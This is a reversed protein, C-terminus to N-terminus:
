LLGTLPTVVANEDVPVPLVRTCGPETVLADPTAVPEIAEVTASSFVILMVVGLPKVPTLAVTVKTAPVATAPFEVMEAEGDLPIVASPVVIVVTVIVRRSTFLLGTLPIEVVIAEVPTPFVIACGPEAVLAAPCAVAVNFDVKASAFVILIAVGAPKLPTVVEAVKTAPAGVTALEVIEADGEVPRVASPVVDEVTVMVRRSALLLGAGPRVAVKAAVPVPFVRVWGAATVLAEPTVVPVILDVAAPNFVSLTDPGAPSEVTVLVTVNTAPAADAAVDVMAAEGLVPTVASPEAVDATVIVRRSALPFGIAPTAVVKPEVPVPFVSTWGAETVFADPTAVPVMAEVTASAFVSLMVPGAPRDLTVLVTVNAGPAGDAVLEVIAAEGLVPRVAFPEVVEVTVIVRRSAFLLEILPVDTVKAAVPEPFVRTCGAATVFADPTAVPVMAEVAAPVFVTLMAVGTPSEVTVDVTVNTAPVATAPFEVREAEGLEFTVASPTADEVTVIVKRSVFLLGTLPTEVVIADVPLPM